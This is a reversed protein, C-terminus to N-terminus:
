ENLFHIRHRLAVRDRLPILFHTVHGLPRHCEAHGLGLLAMYQLLAYLNWVINPWFHFIFLHIIVPSLNKGVHENAIYLNRLELSAKVVSGTTHLPCWLIRRVIKFLLKVTDLM